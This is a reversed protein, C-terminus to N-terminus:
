CRWYARGPSPNHTVLVLQASESGRVTSGWVRCRQKRWCCLVIVFSNIFTQTYTCNGLKHKMDIVKCLPLSSTTSCLSVFGPIVGVCGFKAVGSSKDVSRAPALAEQCPYFWRVRCSVCERGQKVVTVGQPEWCNLPM